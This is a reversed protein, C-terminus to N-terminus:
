GSRSFTAYGVIAGALVAVKPLVLAGAARLERVIRHETQQSHPIIPLHANLSMRSQM